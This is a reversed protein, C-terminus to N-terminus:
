VLVGDHGRREPDLSVCAPRQALDQDGETRDRDVIQVRGEVNLAQALREPDALDEHALLLEGLSLEGLGQAELELHGEELLDLDIVDGIGEYLGYRDGERPLM